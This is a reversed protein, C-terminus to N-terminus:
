RAKKYNLKSTNIFDMSIIKRIKTIKNKNKKAKLM